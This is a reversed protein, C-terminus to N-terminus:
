SVWKGNFYTVTEVWQFIGRLGQIVGAIRLEMLRLVYYLMDCNSSLFIDVQNFALLSDSLTLLVVQM